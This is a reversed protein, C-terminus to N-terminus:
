NSLKLQTTSNNKNNSISNTLQCAEINQLIQIQEQTCSFDWRQKNNVYYKPLSKKLHRSGNNLKSLLWEWTRTAELESKAKGEHNCLAVIDALLLLKPGRLDNRPM